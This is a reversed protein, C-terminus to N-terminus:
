PKSAVETPAPQLAEELRTVLHMSSSAGAFGLVRRDVNLRQTLVRGRDMDFRIEGKVMRHAMQGDIEPTTPSLVLFETAITAVGASVSKLTHKRQAVITKQGGDPVKVLVDIPQVWSEGVELAKEPLLFVVQEHPDAAPQHHKIDRDIVEGRPSMRISSLPVGVARAADEFGPPPEEGKTSDFVMAARDPLKNEMRVREVLNLFEIEGDPTVDIVKWVKVSVTKTQAEQTTGEMSNTVSSRQDVEWRLTDGTKLKYRLLHKEAGDSLALQPVALLLVAALAFRM